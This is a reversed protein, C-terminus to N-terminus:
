PTRLLTSSRFLKHWDASRGKQTPCRWVKEGGVGSVSCAVCGRVGAGGVEDVVSVWSTQRAGYGRRGGNEKRSLVHLSKSSFISLQKFPVCLSPYNTLGSEEPYCQTDLQNQASHLGSTAADKKDHCLLRSLPPVNRRVLGLFAVHKRILPAHRGELSERSIRFAAWGRAAGQALEVRRCVFPGKALTLPRATLLVM